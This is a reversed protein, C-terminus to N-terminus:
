LIFFMLIFMVAVAIALSIVNIITQKLNPCFKQLLLNIIFYLIVAAIIAILEEKSEFRVSRVRIRQLINLYTM